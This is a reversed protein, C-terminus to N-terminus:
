PALASRSFRASRVASSSRRSAVAACTAARCSSRSNRHANGPEGPVRRRARRRSSSIPFRTRRRGRSRRLASSSVPMAPDTVRWTNGNGTACQSARVTADSTSISQRWTSSADSSSPNTPASDRSASRSANSPPSKAVRSQIRNARRAPACDSRCHSISAAAASGASAGLSASAHSVASTGTAHSIPSDRQDTVWLMSAPAGIAHRMSMRRGGDSATAWIARGSGAMSRSGRGPARRTMAEARAASAARQRSTLAIVYGFTSSTQHHSNPSPTARATIPMEGVSRRVSSVLM